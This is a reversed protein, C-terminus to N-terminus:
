ESSLKYNWVLNLAQISFRISFTLLLLIVTTTGAVVLVLTLTPSPNGPVSVHAVLHFPQALVDAARRSRSEKKRYPM